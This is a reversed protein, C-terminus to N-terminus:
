TKVPVRNKQVRLESLRSLRMFKPEIGAVKNQHSLFMLLWTTESNEALKGAKKSSALGRSITSKFCITPNTNM